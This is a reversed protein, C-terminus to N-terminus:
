GERALQLAKAYLAKSIRRRNEILKDLNPQVAQILGMRKARILVGITGIPLLGNAEAVKRGKHEDILINAVRSEIALIIAEAEGADLERKLLQLALQNQVERVRNQAFSKLEAAYAKNEQGIENYVAVSIYIEDFLQDLLHLKELIALSILPSADAIIVM